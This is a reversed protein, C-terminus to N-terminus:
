DTQIRNHGQEIADLFLTAALLDASGGPSVNLELLHRDLYQLRRRGVETGSGGARVVLSAGRQAALLAAEGGRYLLCTDELRSMISLLLDLRAVSESAGSARRAQLVPLGVPLFAGLFPPM